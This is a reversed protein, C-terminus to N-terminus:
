KYRFTEEEEKPPHHHLGEMTLALQQENMGSVIRETQKLAVLSFEILLPGILLGSDLFRSAGFTKKEM